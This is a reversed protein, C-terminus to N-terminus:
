FEWRELCQSYAHDRFEGIVAERADDTSLRPTQYAAKVFGVYPEGYKTALTMMTAMAVGTQRAKM